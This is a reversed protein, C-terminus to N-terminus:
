HGGGRNFNVIKTDKKSIEIWAGKPKRSNRERWQSHDKLNGAIGREGNVIIRDSVELQGVFENGNNLGFWRLWIERM